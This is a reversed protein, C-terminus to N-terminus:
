RRRPYDAFLKGMEAAYEREAEARERSHAPAAEIHDLLSRLRDRQDLSIDKPGPPMGHPRQDPAPEARTPRLPEPAPWVGNIRHLIMELSLFAEATGINAALAAADEGGLLDILRDRLAVAREAGAEVTEGLRALEAAVRAEEAAEDPQPALRELALALGEAAVSAPLGLEHAMKALAQVTPDTPELGHYELLDAPLASVYGSPDAPVEGAAGEGATAGPEAAHERGPRARLWAAYAAEREPGARMGLIREGARYDEVLAEGNAFGPPLWAPREGAAPAPAAAANDPASSM